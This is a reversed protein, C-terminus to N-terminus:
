QQNGSNTIKGGPGSCTNRGSRVSASRRMTEARKLEYPSGTKREEEFIAVCRQLM